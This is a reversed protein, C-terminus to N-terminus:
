TIVWHCMQKQGVEKSNVIRNAVRSVVRSVKNVM